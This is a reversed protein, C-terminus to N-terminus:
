GSRGPELVGGSVTTIGSYTNNGSLTLTGTGGMVLALNNNNVGAGGLTGGFTIAAAPNLTLTSNSTFGGVVSSGTGVMQLSALTQNAVATSGLQLVGSTSAAGLTVTGTSLLTNTAAALILTGNQVTTGGSFTNTTGLTVTGSGNMTLGGTGAIAGSGNVVYNVANNSFAVSGPTVTGVLTVTTQTITANSNAANFDNFTVAAADTYNTPTSGSAWNTNATGLTWTGNGAGTGNQLRDLNIWRDIGGRRTTGRQRHPELNVPLADTSPSHNTRCAQPVQFTGGTNLGSAATILSLTGLASAGSGAIGVIGITNTSQVPLPGLPPWRM